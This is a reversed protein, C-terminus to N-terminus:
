FASVYLVCLDSLFEPPSFCEGNPSANERRGEADEASEANSLLRGNLQM